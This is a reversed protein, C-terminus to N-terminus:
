SGPPCDSRPARDQAEVHEVFAPWHTAVVRHLVTTERAILQLQQTKGPWPTLAVDVGPMAHEHPFRVPAGPVDAIPGPRDGTM